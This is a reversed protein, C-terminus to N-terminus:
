TDENPAGKRRAYIKAIQCVKCFFQLGDRSKRSRHFGAAPKVVQCDPCRKVTVLPEAIVPRDLYEKRQVEAICRRCFPQIGEVNRTKRPFAAAPKTENCMTCEKSIVPSWQPMYSRGVAANCARCRNLLKTDGTRMSYDVALKFRKCCSCTRGEMHKQPFPRQKERAKKEATCALCNKSHLDPQGLLMRFDGIPKELQCTECTKSSILSDLVLPHVHNLAPRGRGKKVEKHQGVSKQEASQVPKFDLKRRSGSQAGVAGNEDRGQEAEAVGQSRVARNSAQEYPSANLSQHVCSSRNLHNCFSWARCPPSDIDPKM